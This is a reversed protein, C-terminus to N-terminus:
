RKVDGLDLVGFWVTQTFSHANSPMAFAISSPARGAPSVSAAVALTM